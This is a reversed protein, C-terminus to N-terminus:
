SFEQNPGSLWIIKSINQKELSVFFPHLPDIQAARNVKNSKLSKECKLHSLWNRLKGM